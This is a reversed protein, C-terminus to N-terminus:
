TDSDGQLSIGCRLEAPDVYEVETLEEPHESENEDESEDVDTDVDRDVNDTSM